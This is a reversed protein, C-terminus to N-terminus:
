KKFAAEGAVNLLLVDFARATRRRLMSGMLPLLVLWPALPLVPVVFRVYVDDPPIVFAFLVFLCVAMGFLFVGLSRILRRLAGFEAEIAVERDRSRVVVKSAGVLPNQRSSRMGPGLLEVADRQPVAIRFGQGALIDVVRRSAAVADGPIHRSNHYEM